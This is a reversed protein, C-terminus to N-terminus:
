TRVNVSPNPLEIQIENWLNTLPREATIASWFNECTSTCATEALYEYSDTAICCADGNMSLCNGSAGQCAELSPNYAFNPPQQNDPELPGMRAGSKSLNCTMTPCAQCGCARNATSGPGVYSLSQWSNTSVTTAVNEIYNYQFYPAPRPTELFVIGQDYPKAAPSGAWGPITRNQISAGAAWFQNATPCRWRLTGDAGQPAYNYCAAVASLFRHM